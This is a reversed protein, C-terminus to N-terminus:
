REPTVTVVRRYLAQRIVPVGQRTRTTEIVLRGQADLSWTQTQQTTDGFEATITIVITLTDGKWACQLEVTDVKQKTPQGDLRCELADDGAGATFRDATQTVVLNVPPNVGEIPAWTGAFNPIAVAVAVSLLWLMM